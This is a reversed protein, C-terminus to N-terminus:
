PMPGNPTPPLGGPALPGFVHRLLHWGTLPFRNPEALATVLQGALAELARIISKPLGTTQDRRLLTGSRASAPATTQLGNIVFQIRVFDAAAVAQRAREVAAALQDPTARALLACVTRRVQPPALWQRGPLRQDHAAWEWPGSADAIARSGAVDTLVTAVMLLELGDALVTRPDPGINADASPRGPIASEVHQWLSSPRESPGALALALDAAVRSAERCAAHRRVRTALRLLEALLCDECRAAGAALLRHLFGIMVDSGATMVQEARARVWRAMVDSGVVTALAGVPAGAPGPRSVQELSAPRLQWDRTLAETAATWREVRRQVAPRPTTTPIGESARRLLSWNLSVVLAGPELFPLNLHSAVMPNGFRFAARTDGGDFWVEREAWPTLQGTMLETAWQNLLRSRERHTLLWDAGPDLGETPRAWLLLEPLDLARLGRTFALDSGAGDPDVFSIVQCPQSPADDIATSFATHRPDHFSM